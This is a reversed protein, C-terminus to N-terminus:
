REHRNRKRERFAMEFSLGCFSSAMSFSDSGNRKRIRDAFDGQFPIASPSIESRRYTAGPISSHIRATVRTKPM